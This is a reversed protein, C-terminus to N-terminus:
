ISIKHFQKHKLPGCGCRVTLGLGAQLWMLVQSIEISLTKPYGYTYITM